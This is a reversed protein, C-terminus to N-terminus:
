RWDAPPPLPGTYIRKREYRGATLEAHWDPFIGSEIDSYAQEISDNVEPYAMLEWPCQDRSFFGCELSERGPACAPSAVRGRFGVYVQNIFTLSGTTYFDLQEPPLVIGAEERLERAAGDVSSEDGELYGGPIAWCGRKPEIARRVLLLSKQWAVFCTVVIMPHQYRPLQCTECFWHNRSEGVVTRPV